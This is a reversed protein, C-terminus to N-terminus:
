EGDTVPNIISFEVNTKDPIYVFEGNKEIRVDFRYNAKPWGTTNASVLVSKTAEDVTILMEYEAVGNERTKTPKAEARISDFPYLALWKEDDFQLLFKVNTGAKYIAM